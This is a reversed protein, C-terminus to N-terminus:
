AAKRVLTKRRNSWSEWVFPTQYSLTFRERLRTHISEMRRMADPVCDHFQVQLDGVRDILGTDLLREILEFEGGEINLKMLHVYDLRSAEFFEAVDILNIPQLRGERRHISSADAELSIAECRTSGALGYPHVEIRPNRAFRREIQRAFAAIPEFVHVRCGYRAAIEAAFDGQYGGVDLVVSRADLDYDYRLRGERDLQRWAYVRQEQLPSYLGFRLRTLRATLQLVADAAARRCATIIRHRGLTM